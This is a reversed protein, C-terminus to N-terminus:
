IAQRPPVVVPGSAPAAAAGAGNSAQRFIVVIESMPSRALAEGIVAEDGQAAIRIRDAPVGSAVLAQAVGNLRSMALTIASSGEAGSDIRTVLDIAQPHCRAAEEGIRSMMLRAQETPVDEGHPFYITQAGLRCAGDPPDAHTAQAALLASSVALVGCVAVTGIKRLM